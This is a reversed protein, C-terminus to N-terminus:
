FDYPAKSGGCGFCCCGGTVVAAVGIVAGSFNTAFKDTCSQNEESKLKAIPNEPDELAYKALPSTFCLQFPLTAYFLPAHLICACWKSAIMLRRRFSRGGQSHSCSIHHCKTM